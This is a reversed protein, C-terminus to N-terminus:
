ETERTAAAADAARQTDAQVRARAILLACRSEVLACFTAGADIDRAESVLADSCTSSRVTPASLCLRRRLLTIWEEANATQRASLRMRDHLIDWHKLVNPSGSGLYEARLALIVPVALAELRRRQEENLM